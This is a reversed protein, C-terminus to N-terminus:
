LRGSFQGGSLQGPWFRKGRGSLSLEGGSLAVTEGKAARAVLLMSCVPSAPAIGEPLEWAYCVAPPPYKLQLAYEIHSM